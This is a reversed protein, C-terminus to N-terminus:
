SHSGGGGGGRHRDSKYFSLFSYLGIQSAFKKYLGKLLFGKTVGKRSFFIMSVNRAVHKRTLCFNRHPNLVELGVRFMAKEEPNLEKAVRRGEIVNQPRRLTFVRTRTCLM